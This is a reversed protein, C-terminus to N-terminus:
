QCYGPLDGSRVHLRHNDVRLIYGVWVLQILGGQNLRLKVENLASNPGDTDNDDPVHVTLLEMSTPLLVVSCPVPISKGALEVEVIM